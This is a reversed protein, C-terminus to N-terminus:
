PAGVIDTGPPPEFQFQADALPQNVEVDDLLIQTVQGLKDGLEMMTVTGDVFGLRITDFDSAIAKPTVEVWDVNDVRYAGVVNFDRDLDADGGLLQTPNAGDMEDIRRVVAQELEPDFSWVSEGDAVLLSPSPTTYEWRFRGPRKLAVRGASEALATRREDLLVSRFSARLTQTATLYGALRERAAAQNADDAPAQAMAQPAAAMLVVALPIIRLM